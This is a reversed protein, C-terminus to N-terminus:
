PTSGGPLIVMETAAPTRMGLRRGAEPVVRGRSELYGIRRRLAAAEEQALLRETRARDLGALAELARGQRWAVLVLSGLLLAAAVVGRASAVRM